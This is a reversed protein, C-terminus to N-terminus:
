IYAKLTKVWSQVRRETLNSENDEDIPLGMFKGDILARSAAFNYTSAEVQGVVKGGREFVVENLDAIGDVFTDPYNEGDGLGFLAITKGSLNAKKLKPLFNDWDDQLDGYGWTSAGFILNNFEGLHSIDANSIDALYVDYGTFCEAIYKAVNKTNGTNSGYFIGIKKM